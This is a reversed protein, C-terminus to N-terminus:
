LEAGKGLCVLNHYSWAVPEAIVMLEKSCLSNKAVIM